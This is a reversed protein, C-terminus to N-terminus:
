QGWLASYFQILITHVGIALRATTVVVVVIVSTQQAHIFTIHTHMDDVATM